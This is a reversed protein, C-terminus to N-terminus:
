DDVRLQNTGEWWWWMTDSKLPSNKFNLKKPKIKLYFNMENDYM